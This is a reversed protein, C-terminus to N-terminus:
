SKRRFKAVYFGDTGHIHPQLYLESVEETLTLNLNHTKISENLSCPEFDPNNELFQSAIDSNEQPLISCTAYVLIGGVAVYQSYHQLIGIQRRNLEELKDKSISYKLFPARRVTGLGTCPSDILVKDYLYKSYEAVKSQGLHLLETKIITIGSKKARPLIENLRKSGTDTAMIFGDNNMLNGIHLTKGGAGACADLVKEGPKPDLVFSIIQSGEDQFEFRGHIFEKTQLLNARRLVNISDPIMSSPELYRIDISNSLSETLKKINTNFTNVRINITAPISLARFMDAIVDYSYISELMEFVPLTFSYKLCLAEKDKEQIKSDISSLVNLINSKWNNLIDITLSEPTFYKQIALLINPEVTKDIVKYLDDFSVSESGSEVSPHLLIAILFFKTQSDLNYNICQTLHNILIQHRLGFFILESVFKREKSGISKNQKLYESITSDAPKASTNISSDIQVCHAILNHLKM